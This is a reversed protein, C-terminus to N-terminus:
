DRIREFRAMADDTVPRFLNVLNGGPDRFLISRNGWPMTTPTQVWEVNLSHLRQYEADVDDVVFEVILSHNDAAHASDSGFLQV